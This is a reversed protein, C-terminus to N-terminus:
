DLNFFKLGDTILWLSPVLVEELLGESKEDPMMGRSNKLLFLYNITDGAAMGICSTAFEDSIDPDALPVYQSLAHRYKAKNKVIFKVPDYHDPLDCKIIRTM